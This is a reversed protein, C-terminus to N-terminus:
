SPPPLDPAANAYHKSRLVYVGAKGQESRNLVDESHRELSRRVTNKAVGTAEVLQDITRGEPYDLIAQKIADWATPNAERVESFSSEEWRIGVLYDEDTEYSMRLTRDALRGINNGKRVKLLQWTDGTREDKLARMGYMLRAYNRTYRGGFPVLPADGNKEAQNAQEHTVHDILFAPVGLQRVGGFVEISGTNTEADMSKAGGLSDVIVAEIGHEVIQRRIDKASEKLSAYMRKYHIMGDPIEVDAGAAIAALRNAHTRADAEWDLYLVKGMLGVETGPIIPIGTAVSLAFAVALSSKGSEGDAFLVSPGSEWFPRVVWEVAPADEHALATLDTLPEGQRYRLIALHCAQKLLGDWDVDPQRTELSRAMGSISRDALLNLSVPGILLGPRPPRSTSVQIEVALRGSGETFREMTIDAGEQQWAFRYFDESYTAQPTSM